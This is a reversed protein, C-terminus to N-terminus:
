FKFCEEYKVYTTNAIGSKSDLEYRYKKIKYNPETSYKSNEVAGFSM